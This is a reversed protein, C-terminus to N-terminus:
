FFIYRPWKSVKLSARDAAVFAKMTKKWFKQLKYVHLIKKDL